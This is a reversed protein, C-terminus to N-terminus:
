GRPMYGPRAPSVPMPGRPPPGSTVANGAASPALGNAARAFKDAADAAKVFADTAKDTAPAMKDLAARREAYLAEGKQVDEESSTGLRRLGLTAVDKWSFERDKKSADLSGRLNALSAEGGERSFKGSTNLDATRTAMELSVAKGRSENVMPDIVKNALQDGAEFGVFAAGAVAAVSALAGAGKAALGPAGGGTFSGGQGGLAQMVAKGMSPAAAQLAAGMMPAGLKFGLVIGAATKPSDLVFSVLGTLKNALDPLTDAMKGIAEIMQPKAFSQELRELAVALKAQPDEMRKAAEKSLDSATLQSKGAEKLTTQYAALAAATKQKVTGTTGEFTERYVKGLEVVLKLQEGTFAKALSERKGGTKKFIEGMVTNFDRAEGKADKVAVGFSEQIKKAQEPTGFSDLLGTVATLSKKFSGMANDAQNAMGVITQFGEQGSLGAAKASAGLIGLKEGMQAVTIGGKNGLSIAAAMADPMADATVDFKEALTGVISSLTEISEGTARAGLAVNEMGAEAAAVDGLDEFLARYAGGLENTRQGWQLATIQADKQLTQWAVMDGTGSKIAFSLDKFQKQSEAAGKIANGFSFAGGLTLGFKALDKAQGVTDRLEKGVAKLGAITPEKLARGWQKGYDVTQRTADKLASLYGAPKLKISVSAERDNGAV